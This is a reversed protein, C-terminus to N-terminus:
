APFANQAPPSQAFCRSVSIGTCVRRSFLEVRLFFQLRPKTLVALNMVAHHCSGSVAVTLIVPIPVTWVASLM